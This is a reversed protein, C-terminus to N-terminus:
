STSDKASKLHEYAKALTTMYQESGVKFMELQRMYRMFRKDHYGAGPNNKYDKHLDKAYAIVKKTLALAKSYSVKVPNCRCPNKKCYDCLQRETMQTKTKKKALKKGLETCMFKRQRESMAPNFGYVRKFKGMDDSAEFEHKYPGLIRRFYWHVTKTPKKDSQFSLMKNSDNLIGIYWM